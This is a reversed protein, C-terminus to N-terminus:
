PSTTALIPCACLSGTISTLNDGHEIAETQGSVNRTAAPNSGAREARLRERRRLSEARKRELYKERNARRWSYNRAKSKEKKEPDRRLRERAQENHRERHTEEWARRRARQCPACGGASLEVGCKACVLRPKAQRRVAFRLNGRRCDLGNGNNFTVRARAPLGLVDHTLYRRVARGSPTRQTADYRFVRAKEGHQNVYWRFVCLREYDETNLVARRGRGVPFTTIKLGAM